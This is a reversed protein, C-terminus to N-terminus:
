KNVTSVSIVGKGKDFYNWLKAWFGNVLDNTGFTKAMVEFFKAKSVDADASIGNM